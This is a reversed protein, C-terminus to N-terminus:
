FAWGLGFNFSTSVATKKTQGKSAVEDRLEPTPEGAIASITRDRMTNAVIGGGVRILFGSDWLWRYGADIGSTLFTNEDTVDTDNKLYTIRNKGTGLSGGAYWSDRQTNGYYRLGGNVGTMRMSSVLLDDVTEADKRSSELMEDSLQLGFISVGGFAAVHEGFPVEVGGSFGRGGPVLNMLLTVPNTEFSVHVPRGATVTADGLAMNSTLAVAAAFLYTFWKM